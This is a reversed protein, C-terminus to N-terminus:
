NDTGYKEAQKVSVDWENKSSGEILISHIKVGRLANFLKASEVLTFIDALIFFLLQQPWELGKREGEAPCDEHDHGYEGEMSRGNLHKDM